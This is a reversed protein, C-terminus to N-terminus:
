NCEHHRPTTVKRGIGCVAMLVRFFHSMFNTGLDSVVHVPAGFLCIWANFFTLGVTIEDDRQVPIAQVMKSYRDQITLLYANGERTCPLRGVMDVHVVDFADKAVYRVRKGVKTNRGGAKGRQCADCCRVIRRVDEHMGVWHVRSKMLRLVRNVGQHKSHEHYYRVYYRIRLHAIEVLGQWRLLGNDDLTYHGHQLARQYQEDLGEILHNSKVQVVCKRVTSLVSDGIQDRKICEIKFLDWSVGNVTMIELVRVLESRDEHFMEQGLLWDHKHVRLESSMMGSRQPMAREAQERQARTMVPALVMNVMHRVDITQREVYAGSRSLFDAPVNATGSIFVCEFHFESLIVAWRVLRGNAYADRLEFLCKLNRHDTYLTFKRQILLHRWKQLAYVVAYLEKESVHWRLQSKALAKSLFEVLKMEKDKGHQLLVAGVATDSADCQVHFERDFRPHALWHANRVADKLAQFEKELAPTWKFIVGKCRIQSLLKTKDNLHPIHRALWQVMGLLVLVQRKTNPRQLILVKQLYTVTPGVGEASIEYGLFEVRTAGFVCKQWALMIGHSTAVHFVKQLTTLHTEWDVTYVIIDDVYVQVGEIDAFLERM